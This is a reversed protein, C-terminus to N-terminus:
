MYYRKRTIKNKLIEVEELSPYGYKLAENIYIIAAEKKGSKYAADALYYFLYKPVDNSNDVLSKYYKYVRVFYEKDYKSTKKLTDEKFSYLQVDFAEGTIHTWLAIGIDGGKFKVIEMKSYYIKDGTLLQKFKNDKFELINLESWIAGIQWGIVIRNIDKEFPMIILDTINYGEGKLTDLEKIVGNEERFAILYTDGNLKYECLIEPRGDNDIDKIIFDNGTSLTIIVGGMPIYGQIKHKINDYATVIDKGKIIADQEIVKCETNTVSVLQRIYGLTQSNNSGIIREYIQLKLFNDQLTNVVDIKNMYSVTPNETTTVKGDEDYIIDLQEKGKDSIDLIYEKKSNNCIVKVKYCDLYKAKCSYKDFFNTGNFIQKLKGDNYQYMVGMVYGGSGGTEGCILIDEIQRRSFNGLFLKLNYGGIDIPCEKVGDENKIVIKCNEAFKSNDYVGKLIVTEETCRRTVRGVKVDIVVEKGM